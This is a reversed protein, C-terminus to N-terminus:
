YQVNSNDSNPAIVYRVFRRGGTCCRSRRDVDVKYFEIHKYSESSAFSEFVPPTM